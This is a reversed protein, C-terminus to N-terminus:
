LNAWGLMWEDTIQLLMHFSWDQLGLAAPELIEVFLALVSYGFLTESLAWWQYHLLFWLGRVLGIVRCHVSAFLSIHVIPNITHIITDCQLKWPSIKLKKEREGGKKRKFKAKNQLPAIASPPHLAMPFHIPDLCM